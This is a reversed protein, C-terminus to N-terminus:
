CGPRSAERRPPDEPNRSEPLSFIMPCGGRARIKSSAEEVDSRFRNLSGLRSARGSTNEFHEVLKWSRKGITELSRRVLAQGQLQRVYQKIETVARKNIEREVYHKGWVSIRFDTTTSYVGYRTRQLKPQPKSIGPLHHFIPNRRTEMLGFVKLRQVENFVRNSNLAGDSRLFEYPFGERGVLYPVFGNIFFEGRYIYPGTARPFEKLLDQELSYLLALVYESPLLGQKKVSRRKQAYKAMSIAGRGLLQEKPSNDLTQLYPRYRKSNALKGLNSTPRDLRYGYVDLCSLSQWLIARGLENEATAIFDFSPKKPDIDYDVLLSFSPTPRTSPEVFLVQGEDEDLRFMHEKPRERTASAAIYVLLRLCPHMHIFDLHAYSEWAPASMPNKDTPTDRSIEQFFTMDDCEQHIRVIKKALHRGGFRDLDAFLHTVLMQTRTRGLRSLHVRRILRDRAALVSNVFPLARADVTIQYSHDEDHHLHVAGYLEDPSLGIAFGSHSNDRILYDIKDADFDGSIVPNFPKLEGKARRVALRSIEDILDASIGYSEMSSRLEPSRQISWKTFSEHSYRKFLLERIEPTEYNSRFARELLSPFRKFTLETAHSFPPHGLDHMLAALRVAQRIEDNFLRRREEKPIIKHHWSTDKIISFIQDAVYMVGISHELRTHHLGPYDQYALGLQKIQQLRTLPQSRLLEHEVDTIPFAGWIPDSVQKTFNM